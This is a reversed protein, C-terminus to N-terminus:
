SLSNSLRRKWCISMQSVLWGISTRHVVVSFINASCRLKKLWKLTLEPSNRLVHAIIETHFDELQTRGDSILRQLKSFLSM